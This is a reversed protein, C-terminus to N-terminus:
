TNMRREETVGPPHLPLAVRDSLDLIEPNMIPCVPNIQSSGKLTRKRRSGSKVCLM